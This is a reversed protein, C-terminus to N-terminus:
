VYCLASNQCWCVKEFMHLWQNRVEGPPVHYPNLILVPLLSTKSWAGFGIQGFMKSYSSPITQLVQDREEEFDKKADERAEDLTKRVSGLSEEDESQDDKVKSEGVQEDSDGM